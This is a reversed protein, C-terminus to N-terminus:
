PPRPARALRPRGRGRIRELHLAVHLLGVLLRLDSAGPQERGMLEIARREIDKYVGDIAEDGAVVADCGGADARDLAGVADDLAREAMIAMAQM